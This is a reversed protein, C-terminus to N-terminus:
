NVTLKYIGNKFEFCLTEALEDALRRSKEQEVGFFETIFQSM